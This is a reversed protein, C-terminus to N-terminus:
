SRNISPRSSRTGVIVALMILTPALLLFALRGEGQHLGKGRRRRKGGTDAANEAIPESTISM